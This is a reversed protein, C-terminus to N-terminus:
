SLGDFHYSIWIICYNYYKTIYSIIHYQNLIHVTIQHSSLASYLFSSTCVRTTPRHIFTSWLMHKLFKTTTYIFDKLWEVMNYKLYQICPFNRRPKIKARHNLPSSLVPRISSCIFSYILFIPSNAFELSPSVTESRQLAFILSLATYVIM